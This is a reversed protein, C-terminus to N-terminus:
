GSKGQRYGQAAWRLSPFARVGGFRKRYHTYESSSDTESFAVKKAIESTKIKRVDVGDLMVQGNKAPLLNTMVSLLTSKGAGNAGVLATITNERVTINIDSLTENDNHRSYSQSINKVEIM